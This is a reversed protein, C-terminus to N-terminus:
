ASENNIQCVYILWLTSANVLIAGRKKQVPRPAGGMVVRWPVTLGREISFEFLANM